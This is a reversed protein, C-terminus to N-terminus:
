DVTVRVTAYVDSGSSFISGIALGLPLPVGMFQTSVALIEYVKNGDNRGQTLFERVKTVVDDVLGGVPM